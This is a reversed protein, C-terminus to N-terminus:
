SVPAPTVWLMPADVRARADELTAAFHTASVKKDALFAYHAAYSDLVDSRAHLKKAFDITPKDLQRLASSLMTTTGTSKRLDDIWTIGKNTSKAFDLIEVITQAPLSEVYRADLLRGPDDLQLLRRCHLRAVTSWEQRYRALDDRAAIYMGLDSTCLVAGMCALIFFDETAEIAAVDTLSHLQATSHHALETFSGKAKLLLHRRTDSDPAQTSHRFDDIAARLKADNGAQLFDKIEKSQKALADLKGNVQKMKAALYVFGVISTALTLGSLATNVLSLNLVSQVDRSINQLQYATALDGMLGLGPVANLAASTAPMALHAVIRGAGDRVVGGHLSLTQTALGLLADNPITRLVTLGLEQLMQREEGRQCARQEHECHIEGTVQALAQCLPEIGPRRPRSSLTCAGM